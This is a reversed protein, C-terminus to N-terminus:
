LSVQMALKKTRTLGSNAMGVLFCELLICVAREGVMHAEAALLWIDAGTSDQVTLDVLSCTQM